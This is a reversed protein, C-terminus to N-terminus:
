FLTPLSLFTNANGSPAALFSNALKFIHQCESLSSNFLTPLSLFTNANGSPAALFHQCALFLTPM